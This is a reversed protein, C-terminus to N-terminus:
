VKHVCVLPIKIIIIHVESKPAEIAAKSIATEGTEGEESKQLCFFLACGTM